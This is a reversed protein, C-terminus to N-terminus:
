GGAIGLPLAQLLSCTDPVNASIIFAGRHIWEDAVEM